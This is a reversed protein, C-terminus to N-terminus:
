DRGVGRSDRAQDFAVVEADRMLRRGHRREAVERAARKRDHEARQAQERVRERMRQHHIDVCRQLQAIPAVARWGNAGRFVLGGRGNAHVTALPRDSTLGVSTVRAAGIPQGAIRYALTTPAARTPLQKRLLTSISDADFCASARRTAIQISDGGELTVVPPKSFM